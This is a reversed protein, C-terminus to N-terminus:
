FKRTQLSIVPIESAIFDSPAKARDIKENLVRFRRSYHSPPFIGKVKFAIAMTQRGAGSGFRDPKCSIWFSSSTATKLASELEKNSFNNVGYSYLFDSAIMSAFRQQKATGGQPYNKLFDFRIQNQVETETKCHTQTEM